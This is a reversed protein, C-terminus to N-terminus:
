YRTMQLGLGYYGSAANPGLCRMSGEYAVYYPSYANVYYWTTNGYTTAYSHDGTWSGSSNRFYGHINVELTAGSPCAASASAAVYYYSGGGPYGGPQMWPGAHCCGAWVSWGVSSPGNIPTTGSATASPNSSAPGIVAIVRFYWTAGQQLGTVAQSTGTAGALTSYSSFNSAKSYHITYSTAGAVACWNVTIQSVSNVTASICSPVPVIPVGSVPPSTWSSQQAGAVAQVQFYYTTGTTLGTVQRSTGSISSITTPSTMGSSTSYRLTYSTAPVPTTVANWSVTIQTSSNPTTAVGTPSAVQLTTASVINSWSGTMSGDYAAVRFFYQTGTSLSGVSTSTGSATSTQLNSSSFTNVTDVQVQYTSVNQAETWSLAVSNFDANTVTLVPTGATTVSTHRRSAITGITNESEVKYKITFQGCSTGSSCSSTTDGVYAFFDDDDISTLDSCRISNTEGSTAQPTTLSDTSIGALPGSGSTVADAPATLASCGPYEGNQDYYKELAEAIVSARAARQTDRSDSLYRNVGLAALTLLVTIVVIIVIVEVLTFGRGRYM